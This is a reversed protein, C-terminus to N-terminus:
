QKARIAANGANKVVHNSLRPIFLTLRVVLPCTLHHHKGFAQVIQVM